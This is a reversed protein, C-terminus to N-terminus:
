EFYGNIFGYQIIHEDMAEVFEIKKVNNKTKLECDLVYINFQYKHKIGKPPNPGKYRSKQKANGLNPLVKDDPINEPIIDMIPINWIMWHNMPQDLDDFVIAITKGNKFLNEFTFEPSYGYKRTYKPPFLGGNQLDKCKVILEPYNSEM